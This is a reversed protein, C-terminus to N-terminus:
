REQKVNLEVTWQANGVTQHWGRFDATDEEANSPHTHETQTFTAMVIGNVKNTIARARCKASWSANM